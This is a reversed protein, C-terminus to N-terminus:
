IQSLFIIKIGTTITFDFDFYKINKINNDNNNNKDSDNNNNIKNENIIITTLFFDNAFINIKKMNKLKDDENTIEKNNLM